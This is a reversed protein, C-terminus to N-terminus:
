FLFFRKQKEITDLINPPTYNKNNFDLLQNYLLWIEKNNRLSTKEMLRKNIINIPTRYYFMYIVLIDFLFIDIREDLPLNNLYQDTLMKPFSDTKYQGITSNDLDCIYVKYDDILFNFSNLDGLIINNSHAEKILDKVAKLLFIKDRKSKFLFDDLTTYSIFDMTYGKFQNNIFVLEKPKVFNNSLKINDLCILKKRKNELVQNDYKAGSEDKQKFIKFVKNNKLYVKSEYSSDSLIKMNQLEEETINTFNM